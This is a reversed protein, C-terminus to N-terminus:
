STDKQRSGLRGFDECSNRYSGLIGQFGNPNIVGAEALTKAASESTAGSELLKKVIVKKRILPIPPFFAM